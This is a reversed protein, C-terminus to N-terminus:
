TLDKLYRIGPRGKPQIEDTPVFGTRSLVPRSGPNDLTTAARRATLGYESAARACIQRFARTALGRGAAREAIRYGLETSGDTVDVLNVRGVIESGSDVPVDFYHRGAAQEALLQSAPRRLPRLLRRRSGSRVGRLLGPKEREFALVAPAHDLRLLQLEPM